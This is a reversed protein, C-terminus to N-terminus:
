SSPTITFTYSDSSKQGINTGTVIVQYSGSQPGDFPLQILVMAWNNPSITTITTTPVSQSINTYPHFSAWSAGTGSLSLTIKNTFYTNNMKNNDTQILFGTQSGARLESPVGFRDIQISFSCVYDYILALSILSVSVIVVIATITLKRKKTMPLKPKVAM